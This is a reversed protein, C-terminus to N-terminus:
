LKVRRLRLANSVVSVSSLSMAAAALMPSLLWGCFPYLVGAAVPVSLANYGFAFWLNQRINRMTARSLRRAKVIGRLDGKVLTVGASEMAVDTGNGMAIGVDAQALAPADNIGDGAMAVCHGSQQWRKVVDCKQAPLVGAEVEDLGLQHAVVDATIRHDGTVMVIRVGDQRLWRVAELTSEKVPDAVGLLGLPRGDVAVFVVTRGDRRWAEASSTWHSFDLGPPETGVIVRRGEVTGTVGRGATSEFQEAKAPSVGRDRAGAIIAAALPHESALELGAALRLLELEDEAMVGVLRPKGETLTGTKDVLLTDVKALLELAGAEKILVGATAGRGVGVMISMPTALGLACPCAIILVAVANVLARALRPEPGWGAWVLFTIAAVVLVVPVFWAAVVDALRQIPARSRQADGVLRVIGALLTDGGVREAQMVLSGASNITGGIVPDGAQKAVPMPEGTMMSEDVTGTGEQVVGDAPVKEGPRVRLRDGRKVEGVPVDVERGDAQLRRATKPTLGLLAHIAASTRRRARLELLQGLLVLTTIAAAAEFYVPVGGGPQSAAPFVNPALVAIVSYVYAVGTGLAILTFMNLRRSVVSAWGRQFFPWGGWWVVPTALGLEVWEWGSRGAMALVVVPLSLALSVWFRLTMGVLGASSETGALGPSPELDMGCEPCAGPGPQRVAPHMPCTYGERAGALPVLAAPRGAYQDPAARFKELCHRSCFWYTVGDQECSGAARAPDVEM